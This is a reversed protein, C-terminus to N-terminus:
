QNRSSATRRGSLRLLLRRSWLALRQNILSTLNAHVANTLRETIEETGARTAATGNGCNPTADLADARQENREENARLDSRVPLRDAEPLVRDGKIRAACGDNVGDETAVDREVEEFEGDQAKRLPDADRQEKCSRECRRETIEWPNASASEPEDAGQRAKM